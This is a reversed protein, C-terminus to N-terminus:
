KRRRVTRYRKGVAKKRYYPKVRKGQKTTYGRVLRRKRLSKVKRRKYAM